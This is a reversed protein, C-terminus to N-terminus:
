VGKRLGGDGWLSDCLLAARKAKIQSVRRRRTGPARCGIARGLQSCVREEVLTDTNMAEETWTGVKDSSLKGVKVETSTM